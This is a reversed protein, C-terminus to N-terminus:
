SWTFLVYRRPPKRAVSTTAASASTGAPSAMADAGRGAATSASMGALDMASMPPMAPASPSAVASAIGHQGSVAFGSEFSQPFDAHGVIIVHTACHM